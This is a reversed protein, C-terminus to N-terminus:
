AKFILLNFVVKLIYMFMLREQFPSSIIKDGDVVSGDLASRYFRQLLAVPGV